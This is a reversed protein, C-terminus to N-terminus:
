PTPELASGPEARLGPLDAFLPYLRQWADDLYEPMVRVDAIVPLFNTDGSWRPVLHTHVHGAFSAGADAGLNMGVNMGSCGVAARLRRVSERVLSMLAAYEVDDLELLDGVHRRPAVLLHSPTFPYRNLCVFAHEQVLLVHEHRFRPPDNPHACFFCASRAEPSELYKM